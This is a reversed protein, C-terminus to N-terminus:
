NKEETSEHDQHGCQLGESVRGTDVTVTTCDFDLMTKDVVDVLHSECAGIRSHEIIDGEIDTLYILYEAQHTLGAM